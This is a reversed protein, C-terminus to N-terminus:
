IKLEELKEKCFQSDSFLECLEGIRGALEVCVECKEESL